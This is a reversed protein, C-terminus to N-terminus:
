SKTSQEILYQQALKLLKDDEVRSDDAVVDGSNNESEDSDSTTDSESSSSSLSDNQEMKKKKKKKKKKMKKAKQKKKKKKKKKKEYTEKKRRKKSNRNSNLNDNDMLGSKRKNKGGDANVYADWQENSGRTIKDGQAVMRSGADSIRDPYDIENSRRKLLSAREEKTLANSKEAAAVSASQEAIILSQPKQPEPLGLAKCRMMEEQFRVRDMELKREPAHRSTNCTNRNGKKNWWTLDKKEQWRGVPAHLSNGLYRQRNADSKVDDWSFQDAGGRTNGRSGRIGAAYSM